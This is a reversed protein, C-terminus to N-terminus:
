FLQLRKSTELQFGVHLYHWWPQSKLRGCQVVESYWELKGCVHHVTGRDIHLGIKLKHLYESLQNAFGKSQVADFRIVMRITDILEGIYVMQQGFEYKDDAMRFGCKILTESLIIM